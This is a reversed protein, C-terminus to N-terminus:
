RILTIRLPDAGSPITTTEFTDLCTNLLIGGHTIDRNLYYHCRELILLACAIGQAHQLFQLPLAEDSDVISGHQALVVLALHMDLLRGVHCAALANGKTPTVPATM